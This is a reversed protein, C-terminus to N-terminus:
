ALTYSKNLVVKSITGQHVNFEKALATQSVGGKAYRNRIELVQDETLKALGNSSGRRVSEPKTHTGHQDGTPHRNRGKRIMDANNDADTGLFLHDPNVCRPTDCHHCVLMGDPIADVLQTYAFRHASWVKRGKGDKVSFSGYGSSDTSGIWLWCSDTKNVKSWFREMVPQVPRARSKVINPDGHRYVRQRHKKCMKSKTVLTDCDDVICPAYKKVHGDWRGTTKEPDGNRQWRAYHMTCWGRGIPKRDCDAVSCINIM